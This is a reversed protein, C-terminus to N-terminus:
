LILQESEYREEFEGLLGDKIKEIFMLVGPAWFNERDYHYGQDTLDHHIQMELAETGYPVHFLYNGPGAQGLNRSRKGLSGTTGIKVWQKDLPLHSIGDLQWFYLNKYKIETLEPLCVDDVLEPLILEGYGNKGLHRLCVEFLEPGKPHIKELAKSWARSFRVSNRNSPHSMSLTDKQFGNRLMWNFMGQPGYFRVFHKKEPSDMGFAWLIVPSEKAYLPDIHLRRSSTKESWVEGTGGRTGVGGTKLKGENDKHVFEPRSRYMIASGIVALRTADLLIDRENAVETIGPPIGDYM